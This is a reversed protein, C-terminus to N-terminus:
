HAVPLLPEIWNPQKPPHDGSLEEKWERDTLRREAPFEYYTMVAGRCLIQVGQWPYLVFLARPRGVAVALNRDTNSDHAVTTFRSAYDLPTEWSTGQYGMVDALTEGYGKLVRADQQDWDAGRLQKQVLIELQRTLRELERWRPWLGVGPGPHLIRIEDDPKAGFIGQEMLRDVAFSVLDGMRHFFEPNPEVFGAPRVDMGLSMNYAKVQLEWTHRFQAWGALATQLSKRAWPEGRMFAPAAAEPKVFLATLASFYLDPLAPPYGYGKDRAEVEMSLFPAFGAGERSVADAIAIESGLWAGVYTGSPLREHGRWRDIRAFWAADPLLVAPLVRMSADAADLTPGHPLRVQDNVVVPRARYRAIISRRSREIVEKVPAHHKGLGNKLEYSLDEPITLDDASGFIATTSDIFQQFAPALREGVIPPGDNSILFAWLDAAGVEDDRSARLPIMQLWRTARYYRSLEPDEAYFGIPRCRRYDIAMLSPEAPALWAPLAVKDAAEIKKVEAAVTAEVDANGLPVNSGLLRLAPGIVLALRRAFPEIEARPVNAKALQDDLSSWANELGQRLRQVRILEFRRISEELLVHFGNLLSDSTVFPPQPNRTYVEFSLRYYPGAIALSDRDLQAITAPALGGSEAERRWSYNAPVTVANVELRKLEAETPLIGAKRRLEVEAANAQGEILRWNALQDKYSSLATEKQEPTLGNIKPRVPRPPVVIPPGAQAKLTALRAEQWRKLASRYAQLAEDAQTPLLNDLNPYAPRQAEWDQTPTEGSARFVSAMLLVTVATCATRSNLRLPM